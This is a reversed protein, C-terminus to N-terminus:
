NLVGLKALATVAAARCSADSDQLMEGVAEIAAAVTPDRATQEDDGAAGGRHARARAARHAVANWQPKISYYFTICPGRPGLRVTLVRARRGRPPGGPHQM